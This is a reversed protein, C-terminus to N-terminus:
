SSQEWDRRQGSQLHAQSQGAWMHSRASHKASRWLNAHAWREWGDLDSQIGDRGELTKVAGCPKSDGTFKSLFCEMGGDANSVFISLLTLGLLSGQPVWAAEEHLLNWVATMQLRSPVSHGVKSLLGLLRLAARKKGFSLEWLPRRNVTRGLGSVNLRSLTKPFFQSDENRKLWQLSCLISVLPQSKGKFVLEWEPRFSSSRFYNHNGDALTGMLIGWTCQQRQAKQLFHKGSISNKPCHLIKNERSDM